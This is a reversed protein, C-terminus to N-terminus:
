AIAEREKLRTCAIADIARALRHIARSAVSDPREIVLPIGAGAAWPISPDYPIYPLAILELDLFRNVLGRLRHEVDDAQRESHVSNPVLLARRVGRRTSLVKLCAYADALSLPEPTAVVLVEDASSALMMTDDSIGAATDVIMTEYRERLSEIGATLAAKHAPELNALQFSGNLGPVLHLGHAEALVDDISAGDLLDLLTRDPAVGLLLNLDAMGLDGDLLVTKSGRSAYAAALNVALTSKGVGGKGGSIALVRRRRSSLEVVDGGLARLTAAQDDRSKM